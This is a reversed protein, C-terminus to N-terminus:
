PHPLESKQVPPPTALFDNVIAIFESAKELHPIHQCDKILVAKGQGVAKALRIANTPPSLRDDTGNIVLTPMKLDGLYSAAEFEQYVKMHGQCAEPLTFDPSTAEFIERLENKFRIINEPSLCTSWADLFMDFITEGQPNSLTDLLSQEPRVYLSHGGITSMLILKKCRDPIRRATELAICGGLSWGLLFFSKLNIDDVVGILDQAMKQITYDAPNGPKVSKGTGRNDFVVLNYKKSLEELITKPWAQLSGAYGMVLVLTEQSNASIIHNYHIGSPTTKNLMPNM